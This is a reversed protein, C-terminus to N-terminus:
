KTFINIKINPYKRRFEFIINTCSQCTPLETYLDISGSINPNKIRSAIDELIKAETDNHRPFKDVVYSDFIKNEPTPSFNGAEAGKSNPGHIKSHAIFEEPLGVIKVDAVAMNGQNKLKSNPMRSRLDDIRRKLKELKERKTLHVTVGNVRKVEDFYGAKTLIAIEKETLAVGKLLKNGARIEKAMQLLKAVPIASLTLWLAAELRSEKEGSLWDKGTILRYIDNIPTLDGM